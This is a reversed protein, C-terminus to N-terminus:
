IEFVRRQDVKAIHPCKNHHIKILHAKTLYGVRPDSSSPNCCKATEHAIGQLSSIVKKPRRIKIKKREEQKFNPYLVKLLQHKSINNEAIAILVKEISKYPLDSNQILKNVKDSEFNVPDLKHSIIFERMTEQGITILSKSNKERLYNRIKQRAEQTKTLKLWNLSPKANKSTIIAVTDGTKLKTPIPMLRGNIKIGSCTHGLNTHIKYAFDIGTSGFPLKIIDGRPTFVFIQESFLEEKFKDIFSGNDDQGLKNLEAIWQESANKISKGSQKEKYNWHAAQGFEAIQHMQNTRIQVEFIHGHNDKVTTHISQYGNEKPRAIYDDIQGPLPIYLSHILGLAKYCDEISAVIVRLAIIDFIQRIDGKRKLKKYLSYFFKARGSVNTFIVGSKKLLSQVEPILSEIANKTNSYIGNVQKKFGLYEKPYAYPFALDELRGKLKGMGLREAIPAYIEITERAYFKIKHKPIWRVTKINDLRDYLKVVLVRPDKSAAFLIRRYNDVQEILYEDDSFIRAKNKIKYRSVSTVGDVIDAIQDGFKERIGETTVDTDECLDHLLGAVVTHPGYSDILLEAAVRLPHFIYPTGSLRKQGSHKEKAYLYAEEIMKQEAQNFRGLHKELKVPLIGM